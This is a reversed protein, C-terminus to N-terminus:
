KAHKKVAAIIDSKRAIEVIYRINIRATDYVIFENYALWAESSTVERTLTLPPTQGDHKGTAEDILRATATKSMPGNNLTVEYSSPETGNEPVAQLTISAGPFVTDPSSRFAELKAIAAQTFKIRLTRDWNVKNSEGARRIVKGLPVSVGAPNLVLDQSPDPQKCGIGVTSNTGAHPKEMYEGFPIEYPRGLAVEALILYAKEGQESSMRCYGLSKQATDAFYVGRGFALGARPVEPPAIRLGERLIGLVNCASTGHWLLRRSHMHRNSPENHRRVKFVENVVLDESSGTTNRFYQEICTRELNGIELPALNAGTFRYVKELCHEQNRHQFGVAILQAATTLDKLNVLLQAARKYHSDNESQFPRVPGDCNDTMPVLEYFEISLKVLHDLVERHKEVDVTAANRLADAEVLVRAIERLKKEAKLLVDISIQGLPLDTELLGLENAFSALAKPNAIYELMGLVSKPLSTKRVADPFEVRDQLVTALEPLPRSEFKRSVRHVIRYKKPQAEFSDRDTWLNGTKSKFVKEFEKIAEERSSFPTQQFKGPNDDIRGWNNIMIVLDKIPDEVLQLKYFNNLFFDYKRDVKILVVDYFDNEGCPLVRISESKLECVPNVTATAPVSRVFDREIEVVADHVTKAYEASDPVNDLEPLIDAEDDRASTSAEADEMEVDGSEGDLKQRFYRALHGGPRALALTEATVEAGAEILVNALKTNEFSGFDVPKALIDLCSKGEENKEQIITKLTSARQENAGPASKAWPRLNKRLVNNQRQGLVLDVIYTGNPQMSVIQGEHFHGYNDMYVLVSSGEALPELLMPDKGLILLNEAGDYERVKNSCAMYSEGEAEDGKEKRYLAVYESESHLKLDSADFVESVNTKCFGPCGMPSVTAPPLNKRVETLVRLLTSARWRQAEMADRIEDFKMKVIEHLTKTQMLKNIVGMLLESCGRIGCSHFAQELIGKEIEETSAVQNQIGFKFKTQGNEARERIVPYLAPDKQHRVLFYASSSNELDTHPAAVEEKTTDVGKSITTAQLFEEVLGIRNLAVAYHFATNGDSPCRISIDAGFRLLSSIICGMTNEIVRNESALTALMLPTRRTEDRTITNVNAGVRMLLDSAKINGTLVAHHLANLGKADSADLDLEFSALKNFVEEHKCKSAEIALTSVVEGTTTDEKDTEVNGHSKFGKGSSELERKVTEVNPGAELKLSVFKLPPVDLNGASNKNKLSITVKNSLTKLPGLPKALIEILELLDALDAGNKNANLSAVLHWLPPQGQADKKSVDNQSHKMLFQCLALDGRGAALHLPLCGNKDPLSADVGRGILKEALLVSWEKNQNLSKAAAILHLMNRGDSDCMKLTDLKATSVLKRVMHLSGCDLADAIAKTRELMPLVIYALGMQKKSSAHWFMSRRTESVVEIQKTGDKEVERRQINVIDPLKKPIKEGASKLLTIAFMDHGRLEAINLANNGDIDEAFMRAGKTLLLLSSVVSNFAAAYMLPTREWRDGADIFELGNSFELLANVLEIRDHTEQRPLSHPFNFLDNHAHAGLFALHMPSHGNEDVIDLQAGADMLSVECPELAEGKREAARVVSLHLPTRGQADQLNITKSNEKLATLLVSLSKADDRDAVMHLPSRGQDNVESLMAPANKCLLKLVGIQKESGNDKRQLAIHLTNDKRSSNQAELRLGCSLLTELAKPGVNGSGALVHVVPERDSCGNSEAVALRRKLRLMALEEFKGPLDELDDSKLCHRLEDIKDQEESASFKFSTRELDSAFVGEAPENTDLLKSFKLLSKCASLLVNPENESQLNTANVTDPKEESSSEDDSDDLMDEASYDSDSDSDGGSLANKKSSRRHPSTAQVQVTESGQQQSTTLRPLRRLLLIQVPNLRSGPSGAPQVMTDACSAVLPLFWELTSKLFTLNNMEVLMHIVTKDDNHRSSYFECSALAATENAKKRRLEDVDEITFFKALPGEPSKLAKALETPVRREASPLVKVSLMEPPIGFKTCLTHFAACAQALDETRLGRLSQAARLIPTFGAQDVESVLDHFVSKTVQNFILDFKDGSKALTDHKCLLHLINQGQNDKATSLNAGAKVLTEFLQSHGRIATYMIPTFGDKDKADVNINPQSLVLEMLVQIFSLSSSTSYVKSALLHLISVGDVDARSLDIDDRALLTRLAWPLEAFVTERTPNKVYIPTKVFTELFSSMENFVPTRGQEDPFNVNIPQSLLLATVANRGKQLAVSLPSTKWENQPDLSADGHKLLLNALDEWGYAAAYHLPTNGSTDATEANVGIRLLWAAIHSHGNICAHVLPSRSVKDGKIPSAGADVLKQAMEMDGLQIALHLPMLKMKDAPLQADVAAGFKLLMDVTEYRAARRSMVAVHIASKGARNRVSLMSARADEPCDNLLLEVCEPRASRCAIHLPTEKDGSRCAANRDLSPYTELLYKLPAPSECAAAYHLLNRKKDDLSTFAAPAAALLAKLYDTCPNVCAFMLPSSRLECNGHKTVSIARFPKSFPESKNTPPGDQLVETHLFNFGDEDKASALLRRALKYSGGRIARSIPIYFNSFYFKTELIDMVETTLPDFDQFLDWTPWSAGMNSTFIKNYDFTPVAGNRIQSGSASCIYNGNEVDGMLANNGEKGGRSANIKARGYGDSYKSTHAGTSLQTLTCAQFRARSTSLQQENLIDSIMETRSLVLAWSLPSFKVHISQMITTTGIQATDKMLGKFAKTDDSRVARILEKTAREIDGSFLDHKGELSTTWRDSVLPVDPRPCLKKSTKGKGKAATAKGSTANKKGGVKRTKRSRRPKGDDSEDDGATGDADAGDDDDDAGVKRKIRKGSLAGRRLRKQVAADGFQSDADSEYEDQLQRALREDAFAFASEPIRFGLTSPSAGKKSIEELKVQGTLSCVLSGIPTEDVEERGIFLLSQSESEDYWEIEVQDEADGNMYVDAQLRGIFFKKHGEAKADSLVTVLEGEAFKLEYSDHGMRRKEPQEQPAKRRLRSTPGSMAENSKDKDDKSPKANAQALSSTTPGTKPNKTTSSENSLEEANITEVPSYKAQSTTITPPPSKRRRGRTANTTKKEAVIGEKASEKNKAPRGRRNKKNRQESLEQMPEENGAVVIRRRNSRGITEGEASKDEAVPLASKAARRAAM